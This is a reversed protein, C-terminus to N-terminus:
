SACDVLIKMAASGKVHEAFVEPLRELPEVSTILRDLPLDGKELLAIAREYDEPEYVRAGRLELEKWFFDFLSVLGPV